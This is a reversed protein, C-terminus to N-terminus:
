RYHRAIGGSGQAGHQINGRQPTRCRGYSVPVSITEKLMKETEYLAIDVQETAGSFAKVTSPSGNVMVWTFGDIAEKITDLIKKKQSANDPANMVNRATQSLGNLVGQAIQDINM